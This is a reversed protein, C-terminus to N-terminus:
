IPGHDAVQRGVLRKIIHLAHPQVHLLIGLIMTRYGHKENRARGGPREREGQVGGDLSKARTEQKEWYCFAGADNSPPSM